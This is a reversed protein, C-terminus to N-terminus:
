VKRLEELARRISERREGDASRMMDELEDVM